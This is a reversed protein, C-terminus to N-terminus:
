HEPKSVPKPIATGLDGPGVMDIIRILWQLVQKDDSSLPAGIAVNQMQHRLAPWRAYFDVLNAIPELQPQDQMAM